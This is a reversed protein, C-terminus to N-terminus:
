PPCLHVRLFCALGRLFFPVHSIKVWFRVSFVLLVSFFFFDKTNKERKLEYRKKAVYLTASYVRTCRKYLCHLLSFSAGPM